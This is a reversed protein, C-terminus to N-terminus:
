THYGRNRLFSEIHSRGCEEGLVPYGDTLHHSRMAGFIWSDETRDRVALVGVVAIEVQQNIRVVLHRQEIHTCDDGFQTLQEADPHIDRGRVGQWVCHPLAHQAVGDRYSRGPM